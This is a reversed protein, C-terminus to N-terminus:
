INPASVTSSDNRPLQRIFPQTMNLTTMHSSLDIPITNASTRTNVACPKFKIEILIGKGKDKKEQMIIVRKYEYKYKNSVYLSM